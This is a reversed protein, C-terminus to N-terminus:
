LHQDRFARSSNTHPFVEDPAEVGLFDALPGWGESVRYVLLREAPIAATVEDVHREFVAVAHDREALRGDFVGEDVLAKAMVGLRNLHPDPIEGLSQFFKLITAEVSDYWRQPDRVTLIVKAEPYHEALERWLRAGPWDVQARYGAFLADLDPAGGKAVAEWPPLLALNDRVEFMHHCPTFGLRELALKLSNTGTRGFGAGIVELGM